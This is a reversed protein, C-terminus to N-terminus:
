ITPMVKEIPAESILLLSHSRQSKPIFSLHADSPDELQGEQSSMRKLLDELKKDMRHVFVFM